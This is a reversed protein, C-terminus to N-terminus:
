VDEDLFYEFAVGRSRTHGKHESSTISETTNVRWTSGKHKIKHGGSMSDLTVMIRKMRRSPNDLHIHVVATRIPRSEDSEIGAERLIDSGTASHEKIHIGQRTM